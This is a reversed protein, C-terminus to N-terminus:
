GATRTSSPCAPSWLHPHFPGRESQLIGTGTINRGTKIVDDSVSRQFLTGERALETVSRGLVESASIGMHKCYAPNVYQTVADRDTIYVGDLLSDVVQRYDLSDRVQEELQSLRDLTEERSGTELTARLSDLAEIMTQNDIVRM